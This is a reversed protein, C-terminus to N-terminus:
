TIIKKEFYFKGDFPKDITIDFLEAIKFMYEKRRQTAPVNTKKPLKALRKHFTLMMTRFGKLNDGRKYHNIIKITPNLNEIDNCLFNIGLKERTEKPQYWIISCKPYIHDIQWDDGLPKGTYACLGGYKNYVEERLQKKM